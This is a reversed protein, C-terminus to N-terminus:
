QSYFAQQIPDRGQTSNDGNPNGCKLKGKRNYKGSEKTEKLDNSTMKLDNSTMKLDQETQNSTKQKRKNINSSQIIRSPSHMTIERRYRQLTSTSKALDKAIECQKLESNITKIEM